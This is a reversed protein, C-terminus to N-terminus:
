SRSMLHVAVAPPLGWSGEPVSVKARRVGFVMLTVAMARRDGDPVSAKVTM